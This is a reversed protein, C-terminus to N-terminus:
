KPGAGSQIAAQLSAPDDMAYMYMPMTFPTGGGGTAKTGTTNTYVNNTATIFATAQDSTSNFEQPKAIGTFVSNEILIEANMGARVCYNDGKSSWLNNFLHNKGYRIRPQRESINDAWWNHHWTVNLANVDINSNDDGGVLNSFRHGSAGTSDSGGTDTRPTYHFKTWSVTVYDAGQTIDLNGDTGDSIDCHDLWIHHASNLISVADAGSSCGMSAVYSPDLSCNGVAYGVITINRLIINSANSIQVHGHLQANCLGAITKNSGITFDGTLTGMVYIIRPTNGAANSNFAATTSVVVPDGMGGTTGSVGKANMSAWGVVTGMAPPATCSGTAVGGSGPAGGTAASIVGGAGGTGARGATGVAGGTGATTGGSGSKGGSAAVGGSGIAGGTATGSGGTGTNGTKGGTVTAGGTGAPGADTPSADSGGCGVVLLGVMLIPLAYRHSIRLASASRSRGQLM